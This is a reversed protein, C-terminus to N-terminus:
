KLTRYYDLFASFCLSWMTCDQLDKLREATCLIFHGYEPCMPTRITTKFMSTSETYAHSPPPSMELYEFGQSDSQFIKSLRCSFCLSLSVVHQSKPPQTTRCCMKSVNTSRFTYYDIEWCYLACSVGSIAKVSLSPWQLTKLFLEAPISLLLSFSLCPLWKVHHCVNKVQRIVYCYFRIVKLVHTTVTTIHKQKSCIQRNNLLFVCM